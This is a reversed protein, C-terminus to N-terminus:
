ARRHGSRAPRRVRRAPRALDIDGSSSTTSRCRRAAALARRRGIAVGALLRDLGFRWTNQPFGDLGYPRATSRTSAGVPGRRRSVLDAIPELDDDTSASAAASRARRRAPRAGRSGDAPRRRARAAPRRRRAAPQDPAAGTPSGSGCGTAPTAAADVATARARVGGLDAPRLDRRGPVHGPHRAARPDPRRRAPRAAVERLVEVQRARGTAPTCRSPATTPTSRATAPPPARRRAIDRQLRGAAHGAAGPRRAHRHRDGGAVAWAHAAARPRRPRARRAAPPAVSPTPTPRRRAARRRRSRRALADWLAPSPHPLWLHVDRHEGLAALLEVETVPLRTHGFLSLRAPLDLPGPEDRLGRSCRATGSRRPRPASGRSAARAM